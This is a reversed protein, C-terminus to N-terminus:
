EQVRKFLQGSVKKGDKYYHKTYKGIVPHDALKRGIVVKEKRTLTRNIMFEYRLPFVELDFDTDTGLINKITQEIFQTYEKLNIQGIAEKNVLKYINNELM